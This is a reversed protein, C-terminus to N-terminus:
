APDQGACLPFESMASAPHTTGQGAQSSTLSTIPGRTATVERRSYYAASAATAAVPRPSASWRASLRSPSNPGPWDPQSRTMAAM